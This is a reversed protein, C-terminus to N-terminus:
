ASWRNKGANKARYMADDARRLLADAEAGEGRDFAVGISVGLVSAGGPLLFALQMCAIIKECVLRADTEPDNLNELIVTFEDGGLRAVTDSKRVATSLRAGFQRLLEDGNHHGMKDNIAKFGDLDLFLVALASTSRRARLCANELRDMCLARNPLGTLLDYQAMQILEAEVRKRESIDRVIGVFIKRTEFTIENVTLELTFTSGDKRVGPLEVNPRGIVKREGTQLFRRMGAEHQDRMTAPMLMQLSHGIVERAAYGFIAEAAANFSEVMGKDNITIIGEGVSAVLMNMELQQERAHTESAVLRAVLPRIQLRMLIVGLLVLLLLAPMVFKLQTRIVSYLEATDQKVVLGLNPGLPTYAAMVNNGLYDLTALLGAKGDVAFSMPLPLGAVNHRKIQQITGRRVTPLCVLTAPRGACIVVEGSTGLGRVDFLQKQLSVMAHTLDLRAFPKGNRLLATSSRLVAQDTWALRAQGGEGDPLALTLDAAIPRDPVGASLLVPGDGLTLAAGVVGNGVLRGLQQELAALAGESPRGDALRFAPTLLDPDRAAQQAAKRAHIIETDILGRRGELSYQLKERLSSELISQQFVFGTMGATLTAVCLIAASMFAIREALAFQRLPSLAQARNWGAGLALALAVMGIATHLAMRASRAWGFLQDPSTMYGVLGTVGIVLLLLVLILYVRGLMRNVIHNKLILCIGILMFGIATNPALRGPRVNGDLLWTHLFAWDVGFDRDLAHEALVLAPLILLIAGVGHQFSNMPRRFLEPLALAAGALFFCLATNFVMAVLGVRFEVLPRLQLLWGLMVIIGMLMVTGALVGALSLLPTPKATAAAINHQKSHEFM